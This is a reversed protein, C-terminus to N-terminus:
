HLPLVQLKRAIGTGTGVTDLVTGDAPLNDVKYSADFDRNGPRLRMEGRVRIKGNAAGTADFGFLVFTLRYVEGDKEWVGHSPGEPLKGLLDSTETFTGDAHFTQIANFSSGDSNSVTVTWTGVIPDLSKGQAAEAATSAFCLVLALLSAALHATRLGHSRLTSM